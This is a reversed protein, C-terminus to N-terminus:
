EKSKWNTLHLTDQKLLPCSYLTFLPLPRKEMLFTSLTALNKRKTILALKLKTEWQIKEKHASSFVLEYKYINYHSPPLNFLLLPEM